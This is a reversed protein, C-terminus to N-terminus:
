PWTHLPLRIYRTVIVQVHSVTSYNIIRYIGPILFLPLSFSVHVRPSDSCHVFSAQLFPRA